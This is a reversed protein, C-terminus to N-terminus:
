TMEVKDGLCLYLLCHFLTFVAKLPKDDPPYDFKDLALSLDRLEQEYHLFTLIRLDGQLKKLKALYDSAPNGIDLNDKFYNYFIPSIINIEDEEAPSKEM